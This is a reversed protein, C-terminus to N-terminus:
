PAASASLVAEASVLPKFTSHEVDFTWRRIFTFHSRRTM